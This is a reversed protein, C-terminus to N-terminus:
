APGRKSMEELFDAFASLEAHIQRWLGPLATMLPEMIPTLSQYNAEGARSRVVPGRVLPRLDSTLSVVSSPVVPSSVV